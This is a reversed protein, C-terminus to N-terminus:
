LPRAPSTSGLLELDGAEDIDRLTDGVELSWGLSEIRGITAVAVTDTSWAIDAFLREDFRGLGLLVYGGDLAPHVVADHDDLAAAAEALRTRDLEPCDTGILLVREGQTTARRAARLLRAGLDGDGQPSLMVDAPRHGDWASDDPEPDACLEVEGVGAALAEAVTGELMRAALRAAGEAGLAPILRTKVRGPVPAKAFILIRTTLAAAM